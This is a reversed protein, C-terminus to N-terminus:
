DVRSTHAKGIIDSAAAAATGAACTGAAPLLELQRSQMCMNLRYKHGADYHTTLCKSNLAQLWTRLQEYTLLSQQDATQVQGAQLTM